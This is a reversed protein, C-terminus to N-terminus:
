HNKIAMCPREWSHIRDFPHHKLKQSFPLSQYYASTEVSVLNVLIVLIVLHNSCVVFLM